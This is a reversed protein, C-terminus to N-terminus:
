KGDNLRMKQIIKECIEKQCEFLPKIEINLERMKIYVEELVSSILTELVEEVIIQKIKPINPEVSDNILQSIKEM